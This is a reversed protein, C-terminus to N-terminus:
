KWPHEELMWQQRASHKACENVTIENNQNNGPGNLCLGSVKHVLTLNNRHYIWKQRELQSCASLRATTGIIAGESSERVDLCISEDTMVPGNPVIVFMQLLTPPNMSICNIVTAAGLATNANHPRQLCRGSLKHVVRGFIRDPGPFFNEPWINKLYWAFNKCQLRERLEFRSRLQQKDKLQAAQPSFRFYFEAWDDMWVAAARALNAYLTNAVGGQTPFTYPSSKRFLHGVHSCPAILVQGGCQWVRFSLELNEGGWIQMGEDYSGIEFFYEKDIAFLGGAMVPTKFPAVIDKRRHTIESSGLSYWRFHMQWNFAGWHLEFSRIYAFTDDSLIDIIPCVVRKRDESIPVILSELWGKTVECHADLFVLVEGRAQRAGRLRAKVLGGREQLRLIRTAIPLESVHKELPYKLFARDSADDVLIIEKLVTSPSRNIVSHVTRLLTSWAENHFVIIISAKPLGEAPAFRSACTKKRVDPLSRNLPIRDSALLNFRNIKFLQHMKSLEFPALQVPSGDKGANPRPAFLNSDLIEKTLNLRPDDFASKDGMYHGVIVRMGSKHDVYNTQGAAKLAPNDNSWADLSSTDNKSKRSGSNAIVFLVLLFLLAGIISARRRRLMWAWPARM